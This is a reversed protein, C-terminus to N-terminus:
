SSGLWHALHLLWGPSHKSALRLWTSRFRAYGDEPTDMEPAWPMDADLVIPNSLYGLPENGVATEGAASARTLFFM